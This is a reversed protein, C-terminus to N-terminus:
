SWVERCGVSAVALVAEGWELGPLVDRVWGRPAEDTSSTSECLPGEPGEIVDVPGITASTEAAEAAIRLSERAEFARVLLRARVDGASAKASAFGIEGYAGMRSRVDNCGGAARADVGSLARDQGRALGERVSARLRWSRVTRCVTDADSASAMGALRRIRRAPSILGALELVAAIRAFHYAARRLELDAIPVPGRTAALFAEDLQRPFPPSVISASQVVDGQLELDLVVGPPWGPFFPGVRLPVRDLDLGDRLDAGTMAMPRGFPVGGMMGEGGQGHDGRGRWPAPPRDPLIPRSSEREGAVVGRVADVICAVPDTGREVRVAGPLVDDAADGCLVATRPQPVQDHLRRVAEYGREPVPGVVVLATAHRPTRVIDIGPARGIAALEASTEDGAVVFISPPACMAIRRLLSVAM